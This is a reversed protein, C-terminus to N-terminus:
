IIRSFSEALDDMGDFDDESYKRSRKSLKKSHTPKYAKKNKILLGEMLSTIMDDSAIFNRNAMSSGRRIRPRIHPTEVYRLRMYKTINDLIEPEGIQPFYFDIDDDNLGYTRLFSAIKKGILDELYKMNSSQYFEETDSDAGELAFYCRLYDNHLDNIKEADQDIKKQKKSSSLTMNKLAKLLDDDM